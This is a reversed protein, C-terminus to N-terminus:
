RERGNERERQLAWQGPPEGKQGKDGNEAFEACVLFGIRHLRVGSRLPPFPHFYCWFSVFPSSDWDFLVFSDPPFPSLITVVGGDEGRGISRCKPGLETNKDRNKDGIQGGNGQEILM